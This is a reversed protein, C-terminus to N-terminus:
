PLVPLGFLGAFFHTAGTRYTSQRSVLAFTKRVRMGERSITGAPRIKGWKRGECPLDGVMMARQKRACKQSCPLHQEEHDSSCSKEHLRSIKSVTQKRSQFPQRRTQDAPSPLIRAVPTRLSHVCQQANPRQRTEKGGREWPFRATQLSSVGNHMLWERTGKLDSTSQEPMQSRAVLLCGWGLFREQQVRKHFPRAIGALIGDLQEVM